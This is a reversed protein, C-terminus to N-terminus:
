NIRVQFSLQAGCFTKQAYTGGEGVGGSSRRGRGSCLNEDRSACCKQQQRLCLVLAHPLWSCTHSRAPQASSFTQSPQSVSRRSRREHKKWATTENVHVAAPSRRGSHFWFECLKKTAITREARSSRVSSQPSCLVVNSRHHLWIQIFLVFSSSLFLDDYFIKRTPKRREQRGQLTLTSLSTDVFTPCNWDSHGDDPLNKHGMQGTQSKLHLSVERNCKVKTTQHVQCYRHLWGHRRGLSKISLQWQRAGDDARRFYFQAARNLWNWNM